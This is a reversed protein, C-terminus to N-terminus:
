AQLILHFFLIRKRHRHIILWSLVVYFVSQILIIVISLIRLEEVNRGGIFRVFQIIIYLFPLILHILCRTEIKYVPNTYFVISFYFFLPTAIQIGHVFPLFYGNVSDFGSLAVVEEMWFSAYLLLFVGFILNGKKNVKLPNLFALYTLLFLAGTILIVILNNLHIYIM